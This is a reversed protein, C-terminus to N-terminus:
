RPPPQMTQGVQAAAFGLAESTATGALAQKVMARFMATTQTLGYGHYWNKTVLAQKAWPALDANSAQGTVLKRHATPHPSAKLYLEAEASSTAFQILDWAETQHASQKTVAELYYSAFAAPAPTGDIQPFPALGLNLRPAQRQIRALDRYYGFTFAVKGSTFAVWAEPEEASWTYTEKTPNAFDTYFRLADAGPSVTEGNTEKAEAFSIRTGTGRSETTMKTGNQLMLASVLDFVYPVNASEGMAAGNRIIRGKQDLQTVKQVAEKFQTWTAPPEAIGAVNLLDRNYFLVLSDLTLPLGYVKGDLVADQLVVDVYSDKLQPLTVSPVDRLVWKPEKKFLGTIELYPLTTSPPIPALRDQWGRIGANPLSIIDPGRGAALAEVALRDMDERRVTRLSVNTNPHIVQYRKVLADVAGGSAEVTWWSLSIPKNGAEQAAQDGGKCGFGSLSTVLVLLLTAALRTHNRTM